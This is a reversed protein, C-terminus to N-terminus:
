RGNELEQLFNILTDLLKQKKQAPLAKLLKFLEEQDNVPEKSISGQKDEMLVKIFDKFRPKLKKINSDRTVVFRDLIEDQDNLLTLEVRYSYKKFRM